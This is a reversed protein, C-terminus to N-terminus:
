IRISSNLVHHSAIKDDDTFIVDLFIHISNEINKIKEVM